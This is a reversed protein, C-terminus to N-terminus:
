SGLSAARVVARWPTKIQLSGDFRGTATNFWLGQSFGDMILIWPGAGSVVTPTTALPRPWPVLPGGVLRNPVIRRMGKVTLGWVPHTDTVQLVARTVPFTQEFVGQGWVALGFGSLGETYPVLARSGLFAVTGEPTKSLWGWARNTQGLTDLWLRNPTVVAISLHSGPGRVFTTIGMPLPGTVSQWGTGTWRSVWVRTGEGNEMVGYDTRGKSGVAMVRVGPPAPLRHWSGAMRYFVARGTSVLPGGASSWAEGWPEVLGLRGLRRPQNIPHGTPSYLRAWLVEHTGAPLAYFLWLNPPNAAYPSHGFASALGLALILLLGGIGMPSRFAKQGVRM